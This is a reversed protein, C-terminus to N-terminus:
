QKAERLVEKAIRRLTEGSAHVYLGNGNAIRQLAKEAQELKTELDKIKNHLAEFDLVPITMYHELDTM